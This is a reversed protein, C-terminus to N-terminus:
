RNMRKSKKIKPLKAKKFGEEIKEIANDIVGRVANKTKGNVWFVLEDERPVFSIAHNKYNSKLWVQETFSSILNNEGENLSYCKFLGYYEFPGNTKPKETQYEIEIKM